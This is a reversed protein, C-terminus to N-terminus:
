WIRKSLCDNGTILLKAIQRNEGKPIYGLKNEEHYIEVAYKDYTNTPEPKISVQAGVKLKEFALVGEYYSFGAIHFNAFHERKM